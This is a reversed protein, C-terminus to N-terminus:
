CGPKISPRAKTRTSQYQRIAARTNKERPSGLLYVATTAHCRYVRKRRYSLSKCLGALKPRRSTLRCPAHVHGPARTTSSDSPEPQPSTLPCTAHIQQNAHTTCSAAPLSQPLTSSHVPVHSLGTPTPGLKSYSETSEGRDFCPRNMVKWQPAQALWRTPYLVMARSFSILDHVWSHVRAQKQPWLKRRKRAAAGSRGASGTGSATDTGGADAGLAPTGHICPTGTVVHRYGSFLFLSLPTPFVSLYNAWCPVIWVVCTYM